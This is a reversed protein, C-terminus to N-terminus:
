FKYYASSVYKSLLLEGFLIKFNTMFVIFEYDNEYNSIPGESQTWEIKFNSVHNGKSNHEVWDLKSNSIQIRWYNM